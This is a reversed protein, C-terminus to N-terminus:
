EHQRALGLRRRNIQTLFEAPDAPSILVDMAGPREIRVRTEYSLAFKVADVGACLDNDPRVV